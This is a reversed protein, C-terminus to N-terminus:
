AWTAMFRYGNQSPSESSKTTDIETESYSPRFYSLGVFVSLAVLALTMMLGAIRMAILLQKEM